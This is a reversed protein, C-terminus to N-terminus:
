RHEKLRAVLLAEIEADSLQAIDASSLRVTPQPASASWRASRGAARASLRSCSAHCARSRPILRVDGHGAPGQAAGARSVASQPAPRAMLSDMGLDMLRSDRAPPANAPSRLVRMVERRVFDRMIGMREAEPAAALQEELSVVPALSQSVRSTAERSAEGPARDIVASAALEGPVRAMILHQGVNSWNAPEAAALLRRGRVRGRSGGAEM